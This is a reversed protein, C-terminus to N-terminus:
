AAGGRVHADFFAVTRQAIDQWGDARVNHGEGPYSHFEVAKGAARLADRIQASWEPKVQTDAQAQHLSVPAGILNVHYLPSLARNLAEPLPPTEEPTYFANNANVDPASPAWLVAARILGNRDAELVRLGMEAGLSHGWLGMRKSDAGEVTPVSAVLNLVDIALEPRHHMLRPDEVELPVGAYGRYDPAVTLYGARALFDAAENTGDGTQYREPPIDGHNLLLVPFPGEGVPVTMMGSIQLGDSPYVIEAQRYAETGGAERVVEVKGGRYVRERLATIAVRSEEQERDARVPEAGRQAVRQAAGCGVLATVAGAGACWAWVGAAGGALADRRTLGSRRADPAM